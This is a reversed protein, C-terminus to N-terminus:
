VELGYFQGRILGVRVFSALIRGFSREVVSPRLYGRVNGPMLEEEPLPRCVKTDWSGVRGGRSLPAAADLPDLAAEGTEPRDRGRMYPLLQSFEARGLLLRRRGAPRRRAPM